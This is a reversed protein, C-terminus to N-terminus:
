EAHGQENRGVQQMLGHYALNLATSKRHMLRCFETHRAHTWRDPHCYRIRDRYARQITDRDADPRIRLLQHPHGTMVGEAEDVLQAIEAPMLGFEAGMLAIYDYEAVEMPGDAMAIRAFRRIMQRKLSPAYALLSALQRIYQIQPSTDRLAAHYLARLQTPNVGSVSFLRLFYDSEKRNVDGDLAMLRSALVASAYAFLAPQSADLAEELIEPQQQEHFREVMSSLWNLSSQLRSMLPLNQMDNQFEAFQHITAAM